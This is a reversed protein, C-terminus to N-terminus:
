SLYADVEDEPHLNMGNPNSGNVLDKGIYRSQVRIFGKLLARAVGTTYYSMNGLFMDSMNSFASAGGASRAIVKTADTFSEIARPDPRTFNGDKSHTGFVSSIEKKVKKRGTCKGDGVGMHHEIKLHRIKMPNKYGTMLSAVSDACVVDNSAIVTNYDDIPDPTLPGAEGEGAITGDIVTLTPKFARNVEAIVTDIDKAHYIGKDARPLVGYNNKSGLTMTTLMHTKWKAVTIFKDIDMMVRSVKDIGIVSDDGFSFPVVPMHHLDILEVDNEKAWDYWGQKDAVPRMDTWIMSSDFVVPHAGCKRVQKVIESTVDKGTYSAPNEPIGGTINIKIGVIDGKKVFSCTGGIKDIAQRTAKRRDPNRGIGILPKRGNKVSNVKVNSMSYIKRPESIVPCKLKGGTIRCGDRDLKL